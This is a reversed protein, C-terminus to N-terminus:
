EANEDGAFLDALASAQKETLQLSVQGSALRDLMSTVDGRVDEVQNPALGYGPLKGLMGSLSAKVAQYRSVWGAIVAERSLLKGRRIKNEM